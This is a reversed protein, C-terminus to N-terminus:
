TPEFDYEVVATYYPRAEDHLWGLFPGHPDTRLLVWVVERGAREHLRTRWRADELPERDEEWIDYVRELGDLRALVPAWLAEGRPGPLPEDFALGALRKRYRALLEEGLKWQVLTRATSGELLCKEAPGSHVFRWPHFDGLRPLVPRKCARCFLRGAEAHALLRARARATKEPNRALRRRVDFLDVLREDGPAKLIATLM